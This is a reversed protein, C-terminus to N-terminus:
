NSSTIGVLADVQEQNFGVVFSPAEGEIQKVLIPVGTQGTLKVVYEIQAPDDGLMITDYKIGKENLYNKLKECFGCYPTTYVTLKM